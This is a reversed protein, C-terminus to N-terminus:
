DLKRLEEQYQSLMRELDELERCDRHWNVFDPNTEMLRGQSLGELFDETSIGYRNEKKEISRKLRRILKRCLRIERGISIEYEDTHM